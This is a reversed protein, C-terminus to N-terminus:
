KLKPLVKTGELQVAKLNAPDFGLMSLITPAIQVTEVPNTVTRGKAIGAGWVVIPVNRDNKANGGHEAIKSLKSGAFVTGPTAIGIVDPVRADAFGVHILAAADVGAYIKSLGANTFTPATPNGNSDSGVGTGSYNWLFNKAFAQAKPSRDKLWLLIGDDDMANAVLGNAGPHAANWAADLAALMNGDNILVLHARNRPSQGHKASVIVVTNADVSSVIKGLSKDVFSLAGALVPGPTVANKSDTVYGGLGTLVNAPNSPDYYGSKNLKQATSVSQFNMGYIAPVGVKNTGGHDLGKTWNIVANVKLSDYTQTDINNKTFDVSGGTMTLSNIEPTFFENVGNGSPGNVIDYAPHKDSWATRLNNQQAIEFITNVNLYQHPYVPMCTKPDVPLMTPDILTLPNSSLLSILSYSAPINNYLGAINQGADLSASDLDISEDFAVVTGPTVGACSTTGPALLARNYSVDYYIGTSGPNGGTVQGVLGPFSDSPFPTMANNYEVGNNVLTALTSTPNNTVFWELDKQHLGDVSILVVHKAPAANAQFAGLAMAVALSILAKNMKM